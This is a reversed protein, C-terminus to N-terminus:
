SRFVLSAVLLVPFFNRNIGALMEQLLGRVEAATKQDINYYRNGLSGPSIVAQRKASFHTVASKFIHTLNTTAYGGAEYFYRILCALQAVSINLGVRETVPTTQRNSLYAAEESLWTKFMTTIAPWQLDFTMTPTFGQPIM